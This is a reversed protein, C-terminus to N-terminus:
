FSSRSVGTKIQVNINQSGLPLFADGVVHSLTSSSTRTQVKECVSSGASRGIPRRQDFM